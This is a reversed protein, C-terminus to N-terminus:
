ESSEIGGFYGMKLLLFGGVTTFAVPVGIALCFSILLVQMVNANPHNLWRVTMILLGVEFLIIAFSFYGFFNLLHGLLTPDM